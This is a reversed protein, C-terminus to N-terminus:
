KGTLYARYAVDAITYHLFSSAAIGQKFIHLTKEMERQEVSFRESIHILSQM